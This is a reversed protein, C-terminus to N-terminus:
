IGNWRLEGILQSSVRVPQTSRLGLGVHRFRQTGHATVQAKPIISPLNHISQSCRTNRNFGLELQNAYDSRRATWTRESFMGGYANRSM